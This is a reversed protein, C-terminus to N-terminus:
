RKGRVQALDHLQAALAAPPTAYVDEILTATAPAPVDSEAALAAAIETDLETAWRAAEEAGLVASARLWDALRLIPDGSPPVMATEPTQEGATRGPRRTVAEILTPGGGARATEVAARVVHFVALADTGDVRVGPMGYALAKIAVTESAIGAGLGPRGPQGAGAGQSAEANLCVFIVPARFVAAFNLGTHFDEAATGAADLYCLVVTDDQKIRAAWALGAAQPLHTSASASAPLVNFARPTVPHGPAQRGKARDNANGLVNALYDRLPLGRFLAAAGERHGPVVWDRATVAALPAISAAELGGFAYATAPPLDQREETLGPLRGTTAATKAAAKAAARTAAKAAAKAAAAETLRLELRRLRLMSRYMNRWLEAPVEALSALLSADGIGGRDDKLISVLGTARALAEDSYIEVFEATVDGMGARIKPPMRPARPRETAAVAPVTTAGGPPNERSQPTKSAAM